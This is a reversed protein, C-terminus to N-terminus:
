KLNFKGPPEPKQAIFSINPLRGGLATKRPRCASMTEDVSIWLSSYLLQQHICKWEEVAPSFQRWPDDDKKAVDAFISPFFRQFENWRYFCMYKEFHPDTCMSTWKDENDTGQDKVSFLDCGRQAFEAAGILIALGILFEAESIKKIKAALAQVAENMLAVKAEWDKFALKLFIM